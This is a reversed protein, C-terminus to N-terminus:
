GGYGLQSLRHQLWFYLLLGPAILAMLSLWGRLPRRGDAQRQIGMRRLLGLASPGAILLWAGLLLVTPVIAVGSSISLASAEHREADRLTDLVGVKLLFLGLAV